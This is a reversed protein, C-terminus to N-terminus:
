AATIAKEFVDQIQHSVGVFQRDIKKELNKSILSNKEEMQKLRRQM